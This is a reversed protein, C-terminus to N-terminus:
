CNIRFREMKGDRTMGITQEGVIALVIKLFVFGQVAM